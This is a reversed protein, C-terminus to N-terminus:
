HLHDFVALNSLAKKHEDRASRFEPSDIGKEKALLFLNISARDFSEKFAENRIPILNVDIVLKIYSYLTDTFLLVFRTILYGLPGWTLFAYKEFLWDLAKKVAVDWALDKFTDLLVDTTSSM